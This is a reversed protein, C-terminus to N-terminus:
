RCDRHEDKRPRKLFGFIGYKEERNMGLLWMSVGYGATYVLVSILLTLWGQIAFLRRLLLGWLVALLVAPMMKAIESWFAIMNLKMKRHYYWNMFLINGLIMSIATGAAAGVSDWLRILVISLLVNCVALGTYVVSRIKHLNKARQIEIGLNQILPVTVPILLLLAVQYSASYGDGVWLRLFDQGWIIFGSLILALVAFQMRGVQSMLRTLETEDDSEAVIRNVRPVFIGSIAVSMQLYMSNIQAGVGYVAVSNTGSIRGLLFKDVSWNIQDIIQNLFIFFTFAWMEWLLSLQLKRFSFTMRLKRACYYINVFFASFTLITTVMVVSVSGYGMMLLPLTLFPNLVSQALRLLKQFFFREHATVYCDFVSNPFTIAMNVTLILLLIGAKELEGATLGDGFIHAANAHLVLGCGLCIAAIACFILLFMGNLRAIGQDDRKTRYRYFYRVYASGFGFSLLSLNAVIAGVMQYLGYESQGLLRLMVPTYILTTLIKVAENIYNLLIGAKHQANHM